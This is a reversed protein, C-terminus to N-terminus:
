ANFGRFASSSSFMVQDANERNICFSQGVTRPIMNSKDPTRYERDKLGFCTAWEELAIYKDADADCQEFFRTTCHEM